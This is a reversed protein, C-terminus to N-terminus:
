PSPGPLPLTAGSMAKGGKLLFSKVHDLFLFVDKNHIKTLTSGDTTMIRLEFHLTSTSSSGVTLSTDSRDGTPRSKGIYVNTTM